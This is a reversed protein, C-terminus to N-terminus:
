ALVEVLTAAHEVRVRVGWDRDRAQLYCYQVIRAHRDDVGLWQAIADRISKLSGRLNDDDLGNSPGVRTLTVILPREAPAPYRKTLWGVAEREAKVKRARAMHHLRANLGNATRIPVLFEIPTM